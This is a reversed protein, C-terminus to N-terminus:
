ECVVIECQHSVCAFHACSEHSSGGGGDCTTCFNPVAGKCDSARNCESAGADENGTGADKTQGPGADDTQGGGPGADITQGGGPGADVVQGGADRPQSGKLADIEDSSPSETAASCGAVGFTFLVAVFLGRSTIDKTSIDKM